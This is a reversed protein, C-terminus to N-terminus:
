KINFTKTVKEGKDLSAQLIYSGKSLSDTNIELITMKKSTIKQQSVKQGRINYIEWKQFYNNGRTQKISCTITKRSPNPYINLQIKELAAVEQESNAVTTDMLDPNGAFVFVRGIQFPFSNMASIAIDDYGDGNIDGVAVEKGFKDAHDPASIGYDSIGNVESGGLWVGAVGTELRADDNTGVIDSFGDGNFDGYACCDHLVKGGFGDGPLMIPNGQHSGYLIHEESALIAESGMKVKFLRSGASPETPMVYDDYGDGNVDGVGIAGLVIRDVNQSLIEIGENISPGLYVETIHPFDNGNADYHCHGLSFDDSDDGNIDGLACVNHRTM